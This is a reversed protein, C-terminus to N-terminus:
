KLLGVSPTVMFATRVGNIEFQYAGPDLEGLYLCTKQIRGYLCGKSLVKENVDLLAYECGQVSEALFIDITGTNKDYHIVNV